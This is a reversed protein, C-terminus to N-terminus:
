FFQNVEHYIIQDNFLKNYPISIQNCPCNLTDPYLSQLNEITSQDPSYVIYAKTKESIWTYIIINISLTIFVIIFFLTSLRQCRIISRDRSENNFLNFSTILNKLKIWCSVM